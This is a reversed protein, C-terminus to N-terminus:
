RLRTKSRCQATLCLMLEPMSAGLRARKACHTLDSADDRVAPTTPRLAPPDVATVPSPLDLSPDNLAGRAAADDEDPATLGVVLILLAALKRDVATGALRSLNVSQRSTAGSPAPDCGYSLRSVQEHTGMYSCRYASEKYASQLILCMYSASSM